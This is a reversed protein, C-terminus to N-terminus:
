MSRMSRMSAMKCRNTERYLQGETTRSMCHATALKVRSLTGAAVAVLFSARLSRKCGLSIGLLLADDVVSADPRPTNCSTCKAM